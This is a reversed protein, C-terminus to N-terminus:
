AVADIYKTLHHSERYVGTNLGYAAGLDLAAQRCAKMETLTIATTENIDTM